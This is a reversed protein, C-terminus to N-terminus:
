MFCWVMDGYFSFLLFTFHRSSSFEKFWLKKRKISTQLKLLTYLLFHRWSQLKVEHHHWKRNVAGSLSFPYAYKIWLLTVAIEFLHANKFMYEGQTLCKSCKKKKFIFYFQNSHIFAPMRAKIFLSRYVHPYFIRPTYSYTKVAHREDLFM